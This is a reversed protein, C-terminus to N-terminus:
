PVSGAEAVEMENITPAEGTFDEIDVLGTVPNILLSIYRMESNAGDALWIVTEEPRDLTQGVTGFTVSHVTTLSQDDGVTFIGLIQVNGGVRPLEDLSITQAVGSNSHPHFPSPPLTDWATDTGAHELTYQQGATVFTVSYPTGNAVALSRAYVLDTQIVQALSALRDHAGSDTRTIVLAAVVAVVSVVMLMEILTYGSHSRHQYAM